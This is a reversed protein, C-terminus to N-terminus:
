RQCAPCFVSARQGLTVLRLEGNCRRCGQGHRGYVNLRQKFYGPEGTGSVFDRLTTGGQAIAAALVERIAAALREYRERSIRGAARRPDIGALFLAESAYINGVGVVVANDMLFPKVAMRRGRSLLFLREGDFADSLPEPGLNALRPDSEPTGALWDVFGFRRPDHYRLIAGDDFVLDIHDHKRPLEGLRAIRLSGSMGLHWILSGAGEREGGGEVPLLLYKARRALIGIRAGVLRDILDDPVAVRLRPQRVIAEVIERGQVHPAIGRRTTEVEPLEPM